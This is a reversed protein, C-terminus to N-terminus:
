FCSLQLRCQLGLDLPMQVVQCVVRTSANVCRLGRLNVVLANWGDMRAMALLLEGAATSRGLGDRRGDLEYCPGHDDVISLGSVQHPLLNVLRLWHPQAGHCLPLPGFVLERVGGWRDAVVQCPLVDRWAGGHQGGPGGQGELPM